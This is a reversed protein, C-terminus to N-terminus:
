LSKKIITYKIKGKDIPENKNIKTFVEKKNNTNISSLLDKDFFIKDNGFFAHVTKNCGQNKKITKSRNTQYQYINSLFISDFSFSMSEESKILKRKLFKKLAITLLGNTNYPTISDDDISIKVVNCGVGTEKDINYNISKKNKENVSKNHNPSIHKKSKSLIIKNNNFNKGGFFAQNKLLINNFLKEKIKPFKNTNDKDKDNKYKVKSINIVPKEKQKKKNLFYDVKENKFFCKESFNVPKNIIENNQNNIDNEPLSENAVKKNKLLFTNTLKSNSIKMNKNFENFTSIANNINNNSFNIIPKEKNHYINDKNRSLKSTINSEKQNFPIENSNLKSNIKNQSIDSSIQINNNYLESQKIIHNLNSQASDPNYNSNSIEKMNKAKNMINNIEKSLNNDSTNNITNITEKNNDNQLINNINNKIEDLENIYKEENNKYKNIEEKTEKIHKNIEEIHNNVIVLKEEMKQIQETKSNNFDTLDDGVLKIKEGLESDIKCLKALLDLNKTDLETIKTDILDIIAKKTGDTYLKSRNIFSDVLNSLSKISQELKQKMEKSEKKNFEKENKLKNIEKTCNIIYDNFNNYKCNKGIIGPVFLADSLSKEYRDRIYSIEVMSDNLKKEQGTLVTNFKKLDSEITTIKNINLRQETISDIISINNEKLSKLSATLTNLDSSVDDKNKNVKTMIKRELERLNKLMEDKFQMLDSHLM